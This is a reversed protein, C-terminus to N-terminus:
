PAGGGRLYQMTEALASRSECDGLNEEALSGDVEVRGIGVALSDVVAHHEEQAVEPNRDPGPSSDVVEPNHAVVAVKRHGELDEKVDAVRRRDEELEIDEVVMHLVKEAGEVLGIDAAATMRRARAGVGEVINHHAEALGVPDIHYVRMDEEVEAGAVLVRRPVVEPAKHLVVEVATRPEESEALVETAPIHM